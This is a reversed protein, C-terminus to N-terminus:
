ATVKRKTKKKQPEIPTITKDLIMPRGAAIWRKKPVIWFHLFHGDPDLTMILWGDVPELFKTWELRSLTGEEGMPRLDVTSGMTSSILILNEGDGDMDGMKVVNTLRNHLEIFKAHESHYHTFIQFEEGVFAGRDCVEFPNVSASFDNAILHLKNTTRTKM